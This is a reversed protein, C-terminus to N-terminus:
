HGNGAHEDLHRVGAAGVPMGLHSTAIPLITSKFEFRWRSRCTRLSRKRLGEGHRPARRGASGGPTSAVGPIPGM